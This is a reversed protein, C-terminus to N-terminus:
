PLAFTGPLYRSHDIRPETACFITPPGNLRMGHRLLAAFPEAAPGPVHVLWNEVLTVEDMLAGVMPLLHTPELVVAPGLKGSRQPYGYGILDSGARLAFPRRDWGQWALHDVREPSASYRM